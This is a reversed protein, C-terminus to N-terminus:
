CSRSSVLGFLVLIWELSFVQMEGQFFKLHYFTKFINMNFCKKRKGFKELVLTDTWKLVPKPIISQYSSPLFDVM